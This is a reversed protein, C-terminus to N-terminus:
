KYNQRVDTSLGWLYNEVWIFSKKGCLEMKDLGNNSVLIGNFVIQNLM